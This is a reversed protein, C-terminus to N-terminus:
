QSQAANRLTRFLASKAPNIEKVYTKRTKNATGWKSPILISNVILGIVGIVAIGVFAFRWDYLQGLFTGIPVGTITAVTLETFMIAIASARKNEPVLSAALTAGIPM